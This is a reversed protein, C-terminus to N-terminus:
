TPLADGKIRALLRKGRCNVEVMTEAGLPEVVEVTGEIRLASPSGDSPSAVTLHEPRIGIVVESRGAAATALMGDAVPVAFVEGEGVAARRAADIRGPIFNMAPSGIFEAVFLNQPNRYVEMPSGSQQVVGDKMVVVMEGMTMAEVQDHTVYVITTGLRKHL